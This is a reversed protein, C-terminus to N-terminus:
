FHRVGIEDNKGGPDFVRRAKEKFGERETDGDDGGAVAAKSRM